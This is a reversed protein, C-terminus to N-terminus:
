VIVPRTEIFRLAEFMNETKQDISRCVHGRQSRIPQSKNLEDNADLSRIDFIGILSHTEAPKHM